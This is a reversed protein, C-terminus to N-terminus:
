SGCRCQRNAIESQRNNRNRVLSWNAIPL